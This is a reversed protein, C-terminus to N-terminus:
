NLVDVLVQTILVVVVPLSTYVMERICSSKSKRCILGTKIRMIAIRVAGVTLGYWASCKRLEGRVQSNEVKTM